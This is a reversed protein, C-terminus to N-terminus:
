KTLLSKSFVGLPWQRHNSRAEEEANENDVEMSGYSLYMKSGEKVASFDKAPIFFTLVGRGNKKSQENRYFEKNGLYLIYRNNGFIFPRSSTLTFYVTNGKEKVQAIKTVAKTQASTPFSFFSLFALVLFLTNAPKM